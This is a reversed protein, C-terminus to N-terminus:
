LFLKHVATQHQISEINPNEPLPPAALKRAFGHKEMLEDLLLAYFYDDRREFQADPDGFRM